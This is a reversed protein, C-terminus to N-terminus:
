KEIITVPNRIRGSANKPAIKKVVGTENSIRKFLKSFFFILLNNNPEKNNAKLKM